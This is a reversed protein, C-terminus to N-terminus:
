WPRKCRQDLNPSGLKFPQHIIAQVLEHNVSVCVCVCVYVRLCRCYGFALVPRPYFPTVSPCVSLRVSPCVSLFYWEYLQKTAALFVLVNKLRILFFGMTSQQYCKIGTRCKFRVNRGRPAISGPHHGLGFKQQRVAAGRAM